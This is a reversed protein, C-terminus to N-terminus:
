ITPVQGCEPCRAPTARLDYGCGACRGAAKWRRSRVERWAWPDPFERRFLAYIGDGLNLFLLYLRERFPPLALLIGAILWLWMEVILRVGM